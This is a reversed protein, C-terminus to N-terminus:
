EPSLMARFMGERTTPGGGNSPAAGPRLSEVPRSAGAMAAAMAATPASGPTGGQQGNGPWTLGMAEVTRKALDTARNSIATAIAEARQEIEEATGTGLTDILEVPLDHMAAAMVRSHSAVAEAADREAKEAREQAKQLETKNADQIKQYEAAAKANEKARQEQKRAQAKWHQLQAALDDQGNSGSSDAGEETGPTGSAPQSGQDPGPNDGNPQGQDPGAQGTETGSGELGSHSM